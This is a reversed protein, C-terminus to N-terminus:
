PRDDRYGVAYDDSHRYVEMIAAGARVAANFLEPLLHMRLEDETMVPM